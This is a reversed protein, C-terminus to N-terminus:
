QFFLIYIFTVIFVIFGGTVFLKENKGMQKKLIAKELFNMICTFSVVYAVFSIFAHIIWESTNYVYINWNFLLNMWLGIYLIISILLYRFLDSINTYDQLMKGLVNSIGFFIPMVLTYNFYSTYLKEDHIRKNIFIFFWIFVFVSSGILFQLLYKM